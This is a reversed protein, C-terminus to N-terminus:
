KPAEAPKEESPKMDGTSEVKKVETTTQSGNPTEVTTTTKAKEEESCGVFGCTSFSGLVLALALFRKM